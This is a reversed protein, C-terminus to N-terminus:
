WRLELSQCRTRMAVLFALTSRQKCSQRTRQLMEGVTVMFHLMRKVAMVVLPLFALAIHLGTTAFLMVRSLFTLTLICRLGSLELTAEVVILVTIIIM